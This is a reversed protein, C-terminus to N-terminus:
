SCASSNSFTMSLLLLCTLNDMKSLPRTRRSAYAPQADQKELTHKNVTVVSSVIYLVQTMM